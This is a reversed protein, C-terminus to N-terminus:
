FYDRSNTKGYNKGKSKRLRKNNSRSPKTYPDQFNQFSKKSKKFDNKSSNEIDLFYENDEEYM